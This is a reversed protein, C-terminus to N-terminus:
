FFAGKYFIQRHWNLQTGSHFVTPIHALGYIPRTCQHSEYSLPIQTGDHQILAAAVDAVITVLLIVNFRRPDLPITLIEDLQDILLPFPFL